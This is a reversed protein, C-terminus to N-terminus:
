EQIGDVRPSPVPRAVVVLRHTNNTYPWCTVMTLREDETAAIWAANQRRVEPPEGKEKLIMKESVEYYYAQDGVYLLVRDGAEIDVLYRFVEGKINHHGNLVVNGGHGPYASTKHWSVAYDAVKWMSLPGNEQEVIYWGIPVIESDLEISPVIIRGPPESAPPPFANEAAERPARAPKASPPTSRPTPPEDASSVAQQMKEALAQGTASPLPTSTPPATATPTATAWGRAYTEATATLTPTATASAVMRTAQAYAEQEIGRNRFVIYLGIGCLAVGAWILISSVLAVRELRSFSSWGLKRRIPGAMETREFSELTNYLVNREM